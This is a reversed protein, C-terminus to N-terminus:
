EGKSILSGIGSRRRSGSLLLGGLLKEPNFM